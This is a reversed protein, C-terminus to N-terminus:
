EVDKEYFGQSMLLERGEETNWLSVFEDYTMGNSVIESSKPTDACKCVTYKRGCDGTPSGCRTGACTPKGEDNLVSCAISGKKAEKEISVVPVLKSSTPQIPEKECSAVLLGCAAVFPLLLQKM